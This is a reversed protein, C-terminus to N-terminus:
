PRDPRAVLRFPQGPIHDSQTALEVRQCARAADGMRGQHCGIVELHKVVVELAHGYAVHEAVLIAPSRRVPLLDLAQELFEPLTDALLLGLLRRRVPDRRERLHRPSGYATAM